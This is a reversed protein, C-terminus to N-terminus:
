AEEDFRVKAKKPNSFAVYADWELEAKNKEIFRMRRWLCIYFGLFTVGAVFLAIVWNQM